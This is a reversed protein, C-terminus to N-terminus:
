KVETKKDEKARQAICVIVCSFAFKYVLFRSIFRTYFIVGRPHGGHYWPKGGGM